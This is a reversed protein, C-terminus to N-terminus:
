GWSGQGVRGQSELVGQCSFPWCRAHLIGLGEARTRLLLTRITEATDLASPPLLQGGEQPRGEPPALGKGRRGAGM